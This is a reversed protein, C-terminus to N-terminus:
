GKNSGAVKANRTITIEPVVGTRRAHAYREIDEHSAVEVSVGHVPESRTAEYLLEQYSPLGPASGEIDLEYDGIRLLRLEGRALREADLKVEGLRPDGEVAVPLRTTAHQRELGRALREFNRKYPAPVIAVAGVPATHNRIAEAVPGVLVFEVGVEALWRLVALAARDLYEFGEAPEAPASDIRPPRRKLLMDLAKAGAM